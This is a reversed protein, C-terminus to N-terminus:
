FYTFLRVELSVLWSIRMRGVGWFGIRGGRLIRLLLRGLDVGMVVLNGISLRNLILGLNLYIMNLAQMLSLETYEDYLM